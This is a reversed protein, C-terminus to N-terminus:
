PLLSAESCCQWFRLWTMGLMIGISLLMFRYAVRDLKALELTAAKDAQIALTSLNTELNANGIPHDGGDFEFVSRAHHITTELTLSAQSHENRIHLKDRLHCNSVSSIAVDVMQSVDQDSRARQQLHLVGFFRHRAIAYEINRYGRFNIRLRDWYPQASPRMAVWILSLLICWRIGTVCLFTNASPIFGAALLALLCAVDGFLLLGLSSLVANRLKAIPASLKRCHQEIFHLAETLQGTEEGAQIAPIVFTPLRQRSRNLVTSIPTGSRVQEVPMQLSRAIRTRQLSRLAISFARPLTLASDIGMTLSSAFRALQPYPPSFM